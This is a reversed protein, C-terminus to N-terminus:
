KGSKNGRIEGEAIRILMYQAKDDKGFQVQGGVGTFTTESLATMPQKQGGGFGLQLGGDVLAVQVPIFEIGPVGFDKAPIQYTGVYRSLIEPSLKVANKTDDSNKGVLHPRDKENEACVYEIMETDATYIGGLKMTWPKAYIKPDSYTNEVEMHGFDKRHFRETLLMTESHPYGNEIWTRDNYGTSQVVLTDGEWHGVSYGMWAPNPDKPLQRDDMFVQRYTLDEALMVILGPTQVIKTIGNIFGLPLCHVSPADHGLNEEREKFLATAWPQIENPKLQGIGGGAPFITWLGSLDPKGDPMKPAPAELNPKGDPMRPIGATPQHLWQAQLCVSMLSLLVVSSLRNM